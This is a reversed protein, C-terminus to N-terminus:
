QSDINKQMYKVVPNELPLEAVYQRLQEETMSRGEEWAAAFVKKGLTARTAALAQEYEDREAPCIINLLWSCLAEQAGFM